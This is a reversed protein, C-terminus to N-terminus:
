KIVDRRGYALRADFWKEVGHRKATLRARGIIEDFPRNNAISSPFNHFIDSVAPTFALAKETEDYEFQAARIEIFATSLMKLLVRTDEPLPTIDSLREGVHM